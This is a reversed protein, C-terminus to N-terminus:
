FVPIDNEMGNNQAFVVVKLSTIICEMTQLRKEFIVTAEAWDVFFIDAAKSKHILIGVIDESDKIYYSNIRILTQLWSLNSVLNLLFM